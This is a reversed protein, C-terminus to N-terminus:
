AREIGFQAFHRDFALATRIHLRKIVAFSVADTFSYGKDAHTLIIQKATDEDEATSREIPWAMTSLWRRAINAGLRALLLAHCEALVLNTIFPEDRRKRLRNLGARAAGHSADDADILAYIASTDVLVRAM